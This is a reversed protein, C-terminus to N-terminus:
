TSRESCTGTTPRLSPRRGRPKSRRSCSPCSRQGTSCRTSPTCTCTCSTRTLPPWQVVIGHVYLCEGTGFSRGPWRRDDLAHRCVGGGVRGVSDDLEEGLALVGVLCEAF